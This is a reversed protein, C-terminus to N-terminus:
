VDFGLKKFVTKISESKSKRALDIPSTKYANPLEPNAGQELLLNVVVPQLEQIAYHLCSNGETDQGAVLAPATFLLARIKDVDGKVIAWRFDSWYPSAHSLEQDSFTKVGSYSSFERIIKTIIKFPDTSTGLVRISNNLYSLASKDGKSILTRAFDLIDKDTGFYKELFKQEMDAAIKLRQDFKKTELLYFMFTYALRQAIRNLREFIEVLDPYFQAALEWDKQSQVFGNDEDTAADSVDSYASGNVTARAEDYRRRKEPDGLVEYALNVEAMRRAAEDKNQHKDPHYRQALAKYAARIVVDEADPLVGLVAYFDIEDSM